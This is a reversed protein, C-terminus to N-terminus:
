PPCSFMGRLLVIALFVAPLAVILAFIEMM